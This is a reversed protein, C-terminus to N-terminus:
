SKKVKKDGIYIAFRVQADWLLLFMVMFTIRHVNDANIFYFIREVMLDNDYVDSVRKYVPLLDYCYFGALSYYTKDTSVEGACGTTINGGINADGLNDVPRRRYPRLISFIILVIIVSRLFTKILLENDNLFSKPNM